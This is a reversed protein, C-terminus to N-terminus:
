VDYVEVKEVLRCVPSPSLPRRLAGFTYTKSPCCQGVQPVTPALMVFVSAVFGPVTLGNSLPDHQSQPKESGPSKELYYSVGEAHVNCSHGSNHGIHRVAQKCKLIHHYPKGHSVSVSSSHHRTEKFHSPKRANYATDVACVDTDIKGTTWILRGKHISFPKM